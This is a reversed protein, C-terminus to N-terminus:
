VKLACLGARVVDDVVQWRSTDLYSSRIAHGFMVGLVFSCPLDAPVLRARSIAGRGPFSSHHLSM